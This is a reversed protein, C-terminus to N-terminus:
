LTWKKVDQESLLEAVQFLEEGDLDDVPPSDIAPHDASAGPLLAIRADTLQGLILEAIAVRFTDLAEGELTEVADRLEDDVSTKSLVDGKTKDLMTFQGMVSLRPQDAGLRIQGSVVLTAVVIVLAATLGGATRLWFAPTWFADWIRRHWAPAQAELGERLRPYFAAFYIDGPDHAPHSVADLAQRIDDVERACDACEAVHSEVEQANDAPLEGELWDILQETTKECTM